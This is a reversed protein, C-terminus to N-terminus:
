ERYWKEKCKVKVHVRGNKIEVKQISGIVHEVGNIEFSDGKQFLKVDKLTQDFTFSKSKPVSDGRVYSHPM